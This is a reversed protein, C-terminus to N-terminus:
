HGSGTSAGFGTESRVRQAPFAEREKAAAESKDLLSFIWIGLFAITM